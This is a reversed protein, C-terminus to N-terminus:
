HETRVRVCVSIKKGFVGIIVCELVALVQGGGWLYVEVCRSPLGGCTM